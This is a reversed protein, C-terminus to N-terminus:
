FCHCVRGVYRSKKRIIKRSKDSNGQYRRFFFQKYFLKQQVCIYILDSTNNIRGELKEKLITACTDTTYDVKKFM